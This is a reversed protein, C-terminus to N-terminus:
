TCDDIFGDAIWEVYTPYVNKSTYICVRERARTLAVLFRCISDDTIKMSSDDNRDLLFRDDFNVLFAYDRTLGKSGLVTVIKIPTNKFINKKASKQALEDRIKSQAIEVPNYGLVAFVEAMTADDVVKGDKIKRLAANVSKITKREDVTLLNMFPTDSNVSEKMVQEFRESAGIRNCEAEFLVRWALNCSNNKLLLNFGEMIIDHEYKQSADINKFGRARLGKEVLEIQIRYPCIILVTPLHSARPDFLTEIEAEINYAIVNQFINRKVAIRPHAESCSDKQESPFYLYEKTMRKRLYGKAQAVEILKEYANIIVNTCRDCYPLGFTEFEGSSHKNRIDAPEAYKFDYLSQDDDGVIVVPSRKTLFSLLRSELKNFDQFEDILIQSYEPVKREDHEFIKILTYVSCNPSFFNYYKRRNSYFKLEEEADILNCFISNYDVDDGFAIDYDRKIVSGLELFVNKDGPIRSLAFSHLTKVEALQHLDRSLDDVLENIFSLAIIKSEGKKVKRKCIQQFLFSKGTGPGAVILKKAADSNLIAGTLATREQAHKEYECQTADAEMFVDVVDLALM